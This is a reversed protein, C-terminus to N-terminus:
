SDKGITTIKPRVQQGAQLSGRNGIVVLDGDHLGSRIEVRNATELGLNVKRVEIRNEATVVMVSGSNASKGGADDSSDVDVAAVPV